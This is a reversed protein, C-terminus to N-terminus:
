RMSLFITSFATNRIRSTRFARLFPPGPDPFFGIGCGPIFCAGSGLYLDAVSSFTHCSQRTINKKSQKRRTKPTPGQMKWKRDPAFEADQIHRQYPLSLMYCSTLRTKLISSRNRKEEQVQVIITGDLRLVYRHSDYHGKLPTFIDLKM